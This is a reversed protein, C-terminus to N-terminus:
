FTEYMYYKISNAKIIYYLSQIIVADLTLLINM